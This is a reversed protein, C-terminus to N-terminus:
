GGLEEMKQHCEQILHKLQFKKEPDSAIAEERRYAALKEKWLRIAEENGEHPKPLNQQSYYNHQEQIYDGEIKENYNGSSIHITRNDTM